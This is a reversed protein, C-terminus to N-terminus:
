DLKLPLWFNDQREVFLIPGGNRRAPRLKDALIQGETVPQGVLTQVSNVGAVLVASVPQM